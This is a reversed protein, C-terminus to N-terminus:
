SDHELCKQGKCKNECNCWKTNITQKSKDFGSKIIEDPINIRDFFSKRIFEKSEDVKLLDSVEKHTLKM